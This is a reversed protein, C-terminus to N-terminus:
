KIWITGTWRGYGSKFHENKIMKSYTFNATACDSWPDTVRLKSKTYGSIVVAHGGSGGSWTLAAIFPKHANIQGKAGNLTLYSGYKTSKSTTYFLATSTQENDAGINSTDGMVYRCILSQSYKKGTVYKGVMQASAAWCWHTKEQKYRTVGLNFAFSSVTIMIVFTLTCLFVVVRKFKNM